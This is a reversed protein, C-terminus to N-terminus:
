TYCLTYKRGIIWMLLRVRNVFLIIDLCNSLKKITQKQALMTNIVRCIISNKLVNKKNWTPKSVSGCKKNSPIIKMRAVSQIKKNM